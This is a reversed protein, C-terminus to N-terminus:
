VFCLAVVFAVVAWFSNWLLHFGLNVFMARWCSKSRNAFHYLSLRYALYTFSLLALVGGISAVIIFPWTTWVADPLLPLYMDWVIVMVVFPFNFLILGFGPYIVILFTIVVEAITKTRIFFSLAFLLAIQTFFFYGFLFGLRILVSYSVTTPFALFPLAQVLFFASLICSTGLIGHVNQKPTLPTVDLLEDKLRVRVANVLVLVGIFLLATGTPYVRVLVEFLEPLIPDQPDAIYIAALLGLHALTAIPLIWSRMLRRLERVVIPNWGDTFSDFWKAFRHFM